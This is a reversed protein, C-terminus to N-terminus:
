TGTPRRLETLGWDEKSMGEKWSMTIRVGEILSDVDKYVFTNPAYTDRISDAAMAPATLMLMVCVILLTRM